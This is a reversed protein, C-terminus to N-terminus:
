CVMRSHIYHLPAGGGGTQRFPLSSIRGALNSWKQGKVFLPPPNAGVVYMKMNLVNRQDIQHAKHCKKPFNKLIKFWKTNLVRAFTSTM